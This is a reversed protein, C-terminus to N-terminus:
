PTEKQQQHNLFERADDGTLAAKDCTCCLWQNRVDPEDAVDILATREIFDGFEDVRWEEMVTATTFFTKHLPDRQCVALPQRAGSIKDNM